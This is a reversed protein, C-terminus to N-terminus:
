QCIRGWGYITEQESSWRPDTMFFLFVFSCTRDTRGLSRGPLPPWTCGSLLPRPGCGAAVWCRGAAPRRRGRPPGGDFSGASAGGERGAPGLSILSVPRCCRQWNASLEAVYSLLPQIEVSISLFSRFDPLPRSIRRVTCQRAKKPIERTWSIRMFSNKGEM